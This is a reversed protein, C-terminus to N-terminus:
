KNVINNKSKFIYEEVKPAEKLRLRYGADWKENLLSFDVKSLYNVDDWYWALMMNLKTQSKKLDDLVKELKNETDDLKKYDDDHEMGEHHRKLTYYKEKWQLGTYKGYRAPGSQVLNILDRNLGEKWNPQGRLWELVNVHELEFATKIFESKEKSNLDKSFDAGRETGDPRKRVILKADNLFDKSDYIIGLLLKNVEKEQSRKDRLEVFSDGSTFISGYHYDTYSVTMWTFLVIILIILLNLRGLCNRITKNNNDTQSYHTERQADKLENPIQEM